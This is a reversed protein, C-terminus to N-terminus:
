INKKKQLRELLRKTPEPSQFLFLFVNIFLLYCIVNWALKNQFFYYFCTKDRHVDCYFFHVLFCLFFPCIYVFDIYYQLLILAACLPVFPTKWDHCSASSWCVSLSVSLPLFERASGSESPTAAKALSSFFVMPPPPSLTESTLFFSLFSFGGSCICLVKRLSFIIFHLCNLLLFLTQGNWAQYKKWRNKHWTSNVTLELTHSFCIRLQCHCLRPRPSHCDDM